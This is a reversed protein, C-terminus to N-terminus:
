ATESRPLVGLQQMFDLTDYESWIEAIRGEHLRFLSIGTHRVEDGSGPAGAYESRHTARASYQVAVMDGEGFIHNVTGAYDPLAAYFPSFAAKYEDMGRIEHSGAHILVDPRLVTEWASWDDREGWGWEAGDWMEIFRRVVAEQDSGAM